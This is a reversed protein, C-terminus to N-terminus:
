FFHSFCIFYSLFIKYPIFVCQTTSPPLPAAPFPTLCCSEFFIRGVLIKGYAMFFNKMEMLLVIKTTMKLFPPLDLRLIKCSAKLALTPFPWYEPVFQVQESDLEDLRLFTMEQCMHRGSPSSVSYYDTTFNRNKHIVGRGNKGLFM